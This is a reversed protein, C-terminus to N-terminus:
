KFSVVSTMQFCVRSCDVLVEGRHPIRVPVDRDLTIIREWFQSDLRGRVNDMAVFVRGSLLGAALSEDASGVGGNRQAICYVSEGYVARVLLQRFTKGSQSQDAEAVDIPFPCRLWGGIRLGPSIFSVLARAKDGPSIFDFDVVLEQIAAVAADLVVDQVKAKSTIFIGGGEPHYGAELLVPKGNSGPVLVPSATIAALKPLLDFAATQTLLVKASEEPCRRHALKAEGDDKRWAMTPISKGGIRVEDLLGRFRTSSVPELSPGELDGRLEVIVRGRCFLVQLPAIIEFISRASEDYGTDASPLLFIGFAPQAPKAEEILPNDEDWASEEWPAFWVPTDDVLQNLEDATAGANKWDSFDKVAVGGRDPLELIRIILAEQQIAEAVAQAHNRGVEDKDSIVVVGMAGHLSSSYSDLWKGPGAGGPNCTATFGMSVMNDVDKEGECLFITKQTEVAERVAPLRYLVKELGQTNWIWHGPRDPDPRRQRFTKPEYRVVQFVLQGALDHYDYCAVEKGHAMAAKPLPATPAPLRAVLPKPAAM